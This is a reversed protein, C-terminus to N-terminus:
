HHVPTVLSFSSPSICIPRDTLLDTAIARPSLVSSHLCCGSNELMWLVELLFDRGQQESKACALHFESKLLCPQQGPSLRALKETWVTGIFLFLHNRPSHSILPLLWQLVRGVSRGRTRQRPQQSPPPSASSAAPAANGPYSRM